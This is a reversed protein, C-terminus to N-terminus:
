ADPMEKITTLLAGFAGRSLALRQGDPDTSDRVLVVRGGSGVEVCDGCGLDDCRTARRWSVEVCAGNAACRSSRRWATETM